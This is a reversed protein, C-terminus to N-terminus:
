CLNHKHMKLTPIHKGLNAISIERDKTIGQTDLDLHWSHM